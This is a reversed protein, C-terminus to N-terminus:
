NCDASVFLGRPDAFASVGLSVRLLDLVFIEAYIKLITGTAGSAGYHTAM